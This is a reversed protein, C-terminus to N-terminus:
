VAGNKLEKIYEEVEVKDWVALKPSIKIQRPFKGRRILSYITTKGIPFLDMIQPLRLFGTLENAQNIM